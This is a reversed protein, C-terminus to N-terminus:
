RGLIQSVVFCGGLKSTPPAVPTGPFVAHLKEWVLSLDDFLDYFDLTYMLIHSQFQLFDSVVSRIKAQEILDRGKFISGFMIGVILLVISVEILTFGGVCYKRV